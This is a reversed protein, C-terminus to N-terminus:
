PAADLDDIIQKLISRVTDDTVKEGAQEVARVIVQAQGRETWDINALKCLGAIVRLYTKRSKTDLEDKTPLSSTLAEQLRALQSHSVLFDHARLPHYNGPIHSYPLQVDCVWMGNLYCLQRYDIAQSSALQHALEPTLKLSFFGDVLADAKGIDVRTLEGDIDRTVRYFAEDGNESTALTYAEASALYTQLFVRQEGAWQLLEAVEVQEGLEMALLQAAEHLTYHSKSPKPM